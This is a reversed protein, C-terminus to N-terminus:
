HNISLEVDKIEMSINNKISNQYALCMQFFDSDMSTLSAYADFAKQQEKSFLKRNEQYFEVTAPVAGHEILLKKIKDNNSYSLPVTGYKDPINPNANKRLLIVINGINEYESNRSVAINLPTENNKNLANVFAGNDLLYEIADFNEDKSLIHLPADGYMDRQNVDLGNKICVKLNRINYMHHLINVGFCNKAHIDAGHQLLLDFM